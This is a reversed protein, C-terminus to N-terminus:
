RKLPILPVPFVDVALINELATLQRFLRSPFGHLWHSIHLLMIIEIEPYNEAISNAINKLITTKGAKPPAVIMGRQGRGIPAILDIIRM